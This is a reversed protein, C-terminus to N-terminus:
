LPLSFSYAGSSRGEDVDILGFLFWNTARQPTRWPLAPQKPRLGCHYKPQRTTARHEAEWLKLHRSPPMASAQDICTSNQLLPNNGHTLVFVRLFLLDKSVTLTGRTTPFDIALVDRALWVGQIGPRTPLRLASGREMSDSSQQADSSKRHRNSFGQVHLSSLSHLWSRHDHAKPARRPPTVHQQMSGPLM